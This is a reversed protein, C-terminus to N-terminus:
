YFIHWYVQKVGDVISDAKDIKDSINNWFTSINHHGVVVDTQDHSLIKADSKNYEIDTHLACRNDIDIKLMKTTTVAGEEMKKAIKRTYTLLVYLVITICMLVLPLIKSHKSLTWWFICTNWLGSASRALVSSMSRYSSIISQISQNREVDSHKKKWTYSADDYEKMVTNALKEAIINREINTKSRFFQQLLTHICKTVGLMVITNIPINDPTLSLMNGFHMIISSCVITIMEMLINYKFDFISNIGLLYLSLFEGLIPKYRYFTNIAM